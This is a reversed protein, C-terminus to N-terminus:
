RRGPRGASDGGRATWRLRWAPSGRRPLQLSHTRDWGDRNFKEEARCSEEFLNARALFRRIRSPQVLKLFPLLFKPKKRYKRRTTRGGGLSQNGRLGHDRRQHVALQRVDVGTVRVEDASGRSQPQRLLLHVGPSTEDERLCAGRTAKRRSNVKLKVGRGKGQDRGRERELTRCRSALAQFHM